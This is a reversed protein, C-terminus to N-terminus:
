KDLSQALQDRDLVRMLAVRQTARMRVHPNSQAVWRTAGVTDTTLMIIGHVHNPMVVFVDLSVNPRVAPTQLWERQVIEGLENLRLEGDMIEGFFCRGGYTCITIFYAGALTYDYKQLRISRRHHM